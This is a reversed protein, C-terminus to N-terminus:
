EEISLRDQYQRGVEQCTELFLGTLAKLINAKHVITIKKRGTKLAYQCAFEAIRRCGFRTIIGSAEAVARPDNYLKVAAMGAERYEWEIGTGLANVVAITAEAIEPGIGDGMILTVPISPTPAISNM